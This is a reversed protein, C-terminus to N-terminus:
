TPMSIKIKRRIKTQHDFYLIHDKIRFEYPTLVGNENLFYRMKLPSILNKSHCMVEEKIMPIM